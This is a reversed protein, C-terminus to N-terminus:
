DVGGKEALAYILHFTSKIGRETILHKLMAKFQRTLERQQETSLQQQLMIPFPGMDLNFAWVEEPTEFWVEDTEEILKVATFGTRAFLDRLEIPEFVLPNNLLPKIGFKRFLDRQLSAIPTFYGPGWNSLGLRGGPKLVRWMETLAQDMDQFQFLSFACTVCDFSANTFGLREADMQCFTVNPTDQVAKMQGLRLMAAAVDSGIVWGKSDVWMAAQRAVAGDGCGVDLLRSDKPLHLLDLLRNAYRGFIGLRDKAYEAAVKEWGQRISRRVETSDHKTSM